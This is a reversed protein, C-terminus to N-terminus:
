THSLRNGAQSFWREKDHFPTIHQIFDTDIGYIDQLAKQTFVRALDAIASKIAWLRTNRVMKGHQEYCINFFLRCGTYMSIKQRGDTKRGARDKLLCLSTCSRIAKWASRAIM